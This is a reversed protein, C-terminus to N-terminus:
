GNSCLAVGCPELVSAKSPGLRDGSIEDEQRGAIQQDVPHIVAEGDHASQACPKRRRKRDEKRRPQKSLQGGEPRASIPSSRLVAGCKLAQSLAQRRITKLLCGVHCPDLMLSSAGLSSLRSSTSSREMCAM